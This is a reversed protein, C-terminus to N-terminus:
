KNLSVIVAGSRQPTSTEKKAKLIRDMVPLLYALTKGSGDAENILVNSGEEVM